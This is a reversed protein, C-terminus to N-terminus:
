STRPLKMGSFKICILKITATETDDANGARADRFLTGKCLDDANLQGAAFIEGLDHVVLDDGAYTDTAKTEAVTVLSGGSLMPENDQIHRGTVELEVVSGGGSAGQMRYFAKATVASGTDLDDDVVFWWGCHTLVGDAADIGFSYGDYDSANNVSSADGIALNPAADTAKLIRPMFYFTWSKVMDPVDKYAHGTTQASDACLARYNAGVPLRTVANADRVLIDGKTTLTSRPIYLSDTYDVDLTVRDQDDYEVGTGLQRQKAFWSLLRSRTDDMWREAEAADASMKPPPKIRLEITM